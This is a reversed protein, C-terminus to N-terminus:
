PACRTIAPSAQATVHLISAIRATSWQAEEKPAKAYHRFDVIKHQVQGQGYRQMFLVAQKIAYDMLEEDKATFEFLKDCTESKKKRM